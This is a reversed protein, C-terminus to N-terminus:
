KASLLSRLQSSRYIWSPFRCVHAKSRRLSILPFESEWDLKHEHKMSSKDICWLHQQNLGVPQLNYFMLVFRIVGVHRLHGSDRAMITSSYHCTSPLRWIKSSDIEVSEHMIFFDVSTQGFLTVWNCSGPKMLNGTPRLHSHIIIFNSPLM